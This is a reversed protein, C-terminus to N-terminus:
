SGGQSWTVEIHIKRTEKEKNQTGLMRPVPRGIDTHVTPGIDGHDKLNGIGRGARIFGSHRGLGKRLDDTGYKQESIVRCRPRKLDRLV